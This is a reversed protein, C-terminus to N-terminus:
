AADQGGGPRRVRPWGNTDQVARAHRAGDAIERAIRRARSLRGAPLFTTRDLQDLDEALRRLHEGLAAHAAQDYGAVFGQAWASLDPHCAEAEAILRRAQEPLDPVSRTAKEAVRLAGGGAPRETM